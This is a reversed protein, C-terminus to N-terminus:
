FLFTNCLHQPFEVGFYLISYFRSVFYTPVLFRMDSIEYINSDNDTDITRRWTMILMVVMTRDEV